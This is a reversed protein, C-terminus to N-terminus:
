ISTTKLRLSSPWTSTKGRGHSEVGRKKRRAIPEPATNGCLSEEQVNSSAPRAERWEITGASPSGRKARTEQASKRRKTKRTCRTFQSETKNGGEHGDGKSGRRESRGGPEQRGKKREMRKKRETRAAEEKGENMRREEKRNQEETKSIM